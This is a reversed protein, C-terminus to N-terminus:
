FEANACCRFGNDPAVQARKFHATTDSPSTAALCSTDVYESSRAGGYADCADDQGDSPAASDVCNNQWESANGAMDFLGPVGGECMTASKVPQVGSTTGPFKKDACRGAQGENGYPYTQTGDNSCAVIWQSGEMKSTPNKVPGGHVGDRDAVGCLYKKAWRCYADADCWDVCVVPLDPHGVPDFVGCGAGTASPALSTNWACRENPSPAPAAALFAQYQANTVETSDICFAPGGSWSVRAMVPGPLETSCTGRIGGTEPVDAAVRDAPGGDPSNSKGSCAGATVAAAALFYVASRALHRARSVTQAL